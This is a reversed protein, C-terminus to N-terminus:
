KQNTTDLNMFEYDNIQITKSKKEFGVCTMKASYKKKRKNVFDMEMMISNEAKGLWKPNFGKPMGNTNGGFVQNFSVPSDFYVYMTMKVEDNEMEFGQCQYGLINKTGVEKFTTNDFNNETTDDELNDPIPMVHGSKKENSDMFITMISLGQDMVMFMGDTVLNNQLQPQSGFYKAEPKLYYIMDFSGQKSTMKLSYKWDFKYHEPLIKPDVQPKNPDMNFLKDLKKEVQQAAKESTKEIVIQEVKQQAREKLKKLFQAQTVTTTFLFISAFLATKLLKM